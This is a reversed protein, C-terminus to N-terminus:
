WDITELSVSEALATKFTSAESVLATIAELQRQASAVLDEIGTARPLSWDIAESKIKPLDKRGSVMTKFPNSLPLPPMDPYTDKRIGSTMSDLENIRKVLEEGLSKAKSDSEVRLTDHKSIIEDV